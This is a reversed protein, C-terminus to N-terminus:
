VTSTILFSADPISYVTSKFYSSCCVPSTTCRIYSPLFFPFLVRYYFLSFFISTLFCLLRFFRGDDRVDVIAVRGEQERGATTTSSSTNASGATGAALLMEALKPATIRELSSLTILSM